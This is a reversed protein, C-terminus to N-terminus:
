SPDAQEGAALLIRRALKLHPRDIMQGDLTFLGSTVVREIM